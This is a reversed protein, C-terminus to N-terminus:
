SVLTLMVTMAPAMVKTGGLDQRLLEVSFINGRDLVQFIEINGSKLHESITDKMVKLEEGEDERTNQLDYQPTGELDILMMNRMNSEVDIIEALLGVDMYIM